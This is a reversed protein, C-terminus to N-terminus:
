PVLVIRNREAAAIKATRLPLRGPREITIFYRQDTPTDEDVDGPRVCCPQEDAADALAGKPETRDQPVLGNRHGRRFM